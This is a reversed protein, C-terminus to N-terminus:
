TIGQFMEIEDGFATWGPREQRSFLDLRTAKPMMAEAVDYAEDPKRSHERLPGDFCSRIGRTSKPKGRTGILFTEHSSRLRYGYGFGLKGHKTIKRWVGHTSYKFGWADMVELGQPLMPNTVWLWLLCDKQCLHQVPLRKIEELTMVRYHKTAGKAEGKSSYHKFRWPNDAMVFDFHYLPINPIPGNSLRLDLM